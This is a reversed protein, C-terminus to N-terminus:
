HERKGRMWSLNKLFAYEIAASKDHGEEKEGVEEVPWANTHEIGYNSLIPSPSVNTSSQEARRKISKM